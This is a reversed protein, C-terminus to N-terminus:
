NSAKRVTKDRIADTSTVDTVAAAAAAPIELISEFRIYVVSSVLNWHRLSIETVFRSKLSIQLRFTFFRLEIICRIKTRQEVPKQWYKVEVFLEIQVTQKARERMGFDLCAHKSQCPSSSSIFNSICFFFVFLFSRVWCSEFDLCLKLVYGPPAFTWIRYLVGESWFRLECLVSEACRVRVRVCEICMSMGVCM